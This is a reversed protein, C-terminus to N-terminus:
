AKTVAGASNFHRWAAAAALGGIVYWGVTMAQTAPTRASPRRGLGLLPPLVVAGVGAAGGLLTGRFRSSKRNGAGVLSYYLTNAILDGVLAYTRLRAPNDPKGGPLVHSLARMGLIDLRPANPLVRRAAEHVLTLTCAGVAGSELAHRINM